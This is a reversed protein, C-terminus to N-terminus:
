QRPHGIEPRLRPSHSVRIYDGESLPQPWGTVRAGAGDLHRGRLTGRRGDGDSGYRLRERGDDPLASRMDVDGDGESRKSTEQVANEFFRNWVELKGRKDKNLSSYRDSESSNNYQLRSGSSDRVCAKQNAPVIAFKGEDNLQDAANPMVRGLNKSGSSDSSIRETGMERKVSENSRTPAVDAYIGDILPLPNQDQGAPTTLYGSGDGDGRSQIAEWAIGRSPPLRSEGRRRETLSSDDGPAHLFDARVTNAGSGVVLVQLIEFHDHEAALHLPTNGAADAVGVAGAALLAQAASLNGQAACLHLPTTGTEDRVDELAGASLLLEICQLVRTSQGDVADPHCSGCVRHLPTRGHADVANVDAGAALLVSLGRLSHQTAALHM